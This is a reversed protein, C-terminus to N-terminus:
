VLRVKVVNGATEEVMVPSGEVYNGGDVSEASWETDGIKVRGIGAQFDSAAMGRRGILSTMRKNLTPHEDTIRRLGAFLTRGLIILVVSAAFFFAFQIRWDGAIGPMAATVLATAGAAVAVWLLDFTGLAAEIGILVLGIALWHWATIPYLLEM